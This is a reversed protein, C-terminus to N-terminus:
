NKQLFPKLMPTSRMVKGLRGQLLKHFIKQKALKRGKNTSVHRFRMQWVGCGGSQKASCFIPFFFTFFHWIVASFHPKCQAAHWIIDNCGNQFRMQFPQLSGSFSLSIFFLFELLQDNQYIINFPSWFNWKQQYYPRIFFFHEYQHTTIRM